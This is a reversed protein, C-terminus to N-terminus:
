GQKKQEKKAFAWEKVTLPKGEYALMAERTGCEDCVMIGDAERSMANTYLDHKMTDRGCRPCLMHEGAQQRKRLDILPDQKQFWAPEMWSLREGIKKVSAEPDQELVSYEKLLMRLGRKLIEDPTDAPMRTCYSADEIAQLGGKQDKLYVDFRLLNVDEPDNPNYDGCLGEEANYWEIRIRDNEISLGDRAIEPEDTEEARIKVSEEDLESSCSVYDGGAPLPIEDWNDRLYDIIGDEDNPDIGDPLPITQRGYMEYFSGFEVYYKKGM